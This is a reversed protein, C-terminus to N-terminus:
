CVCYKHISEVIFALLLERCVRVTAATEEGVRSEDFSAIFAIYQDTRMRTEINFPLNLCPEARLLLACALRINRERPASRPDPVLKALFDLAVGQTVVDAVFLEGVLCALAHGSEPGTTAPRGAVNDLPVTACPSDTRLYLVILSLAECRETHESHGSDCIISVIRRELRTGPM